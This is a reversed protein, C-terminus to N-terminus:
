GHARHCATVGLLGPFNWLFGLQPTELSQPHSKKRNKGYERRYYPDTELETMCRITRKKLPQSFRAPARACACMTGCRSALTGASVECLVRRLVVVVLVRVAIVNLSRCWRCRSRDM